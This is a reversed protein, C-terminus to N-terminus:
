SNGYCGIVDLRLIERNFFSEPYLRLYRVAIPTSLANTVPTTPDSNGNFVKLYFTETFLWYM